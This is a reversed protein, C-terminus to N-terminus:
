NFRVTGAINWSQKIGDNYLRYLTKDPPCAILTEFDGIEPTAHKTVVVRGSLPLRDQLAEIFDMTKMLNEQRYKEPMEKGLFTIPRIEGSNPVPNVMGTEKTFVHDSV